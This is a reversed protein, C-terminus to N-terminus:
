ACERELSGVPRAALSNPHVETIEVAVVKGMLHAVDDVHVPQMYPSRGVLQGPHRGPRDLLVKMVKGVSARNFRVTQDYLLAQLEALRADKVAEDVQNPMGAAPTGPRASYKFSYTNVFGVQRVLDISAAFDADTEGPFGVIF